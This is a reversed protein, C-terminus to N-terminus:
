LARAATVDSVSINSISLQQLRSVQEDRNNSLNQVTESVNGWIEQVIQVIAHNYPDVGEQKIAAIFFLWRDKKVDTLALYEADDQQTLIENASMFSRNQTKNVVILEDFAQQDTMALYLLLDLEARLRELYTM